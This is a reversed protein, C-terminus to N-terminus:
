FTVRYVASTVYIGFHHILPLWPWKLLYKRVDAQDREGTLCRDICWWFDEESQGRWAYIPVGKEALAAAVENQTSFINCASWRVVAGLHVLTEIMVATQANVHTCGVVHAGRLPKAGDAGANRRLAMLGHMENEAYEIEHRGLKAQQVNKVCFDSFGNSARQPPKERPSIGGLDETEDSYSSWSDVSGDSTRRTGLLGQDGSQLLGKLGSIGESSALSSKRSLSLGSMPLSLRRKSKDKFNVATSELVKAPMELVVDQEDSHAEDEMTVASRYKKAALYEEPLSQLLIHNKKVM